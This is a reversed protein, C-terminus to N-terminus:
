KLTMSFHSSVESIHRWWRTKAKYSVRIQYNTNKELELKYRGKFDAIAFKLSAGETTPKAIVNANPLPKGITDQVIGTLTQSQTIVCSLLIIFFVVKKLVV